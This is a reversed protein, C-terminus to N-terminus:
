RGPVSRGATPTRGDSQGGAQAAARQESKERAKQRRERIGDPDLREDVVANLEAGVLMILSTLYFWILLIAAGALVGYTAGYSAVHSAYFAFVATGVVWGVVAFISGPVIWSLGPHINPIVRYLLVVAVLMLVAAMGWRSATIVAGWAGGIGLHHLVQPGFASGFVLVMFAAVALVGSLVTLCLSLLYREWLPRTEDVDYARNLAKFLSTFGNASAALTGLAGVMLLGLSRRGIVQQLQGQLVKAADAPLAGGIGNVIQQALNTVSLQAAVFGTLAAVFLIFPFLVLFFRYALNGALSTVEDKRVQQATQKVIEVYWDRSRRQM